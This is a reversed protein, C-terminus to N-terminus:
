KEGKSVKVPRTFTTIFRIKKVEPILEFIDSVIGRMIFPNEKKTAEKEDLYFELTQQAKKYKYLEPRNALERSRRKVIAKIKDHLTKCISRVHIKYILTKGALPPNFDLLFRGGSAVRVIAPMGNITVISGPLPTGNIGAEMLKRRTYLVIKRPDRLGFGKEPPVEVEFEENEERGVLAEDVGEIIWSKGVAVLMPEYIHKDDYIGAKKAEEEITTDFVEGTEKVRGVYDIYM